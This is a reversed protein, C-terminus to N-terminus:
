KILGSRERYAAYKKGDWRLLVSSWEVASNSMLEIERYGRWRARKVALNHEHAMM